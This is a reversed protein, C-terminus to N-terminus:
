LPAAGEKAACFEGRFPESNLRLPRLALERGFRRELSERVFLGCGVREVSYRAAISREM